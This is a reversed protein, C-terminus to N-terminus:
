LSGPDDRNDMLVGKIRCNSLNGKTDLFSVVLTLDLRPRPHRSFRYSWIPKTRYRNPLQCDPQVLALSIQQLLALVALPRGVPM